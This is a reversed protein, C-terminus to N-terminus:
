CTAGRRPLIGSLYQPAGGPCARIRVEAVFPPQTLLDLSIQAYTPLNSARQCGIWGSAIGTRSIGDEKSLSSPRAVPLAEIHWGDHADPPAAEVHQGAEDRAERQGRLKTARQRPRTV